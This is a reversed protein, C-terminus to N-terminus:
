PDEAIIDQPELFKFSKYMPNFWQLAAEYFGAPATFVLKHMKGDNVATIVSGAIDSGDSATYLFDITAGTATDLPFETPPLNQVNNYEQALTEVHALAAKEAAKSESNAQPWTFKSATFTMDIEIQRVSVLNKSQELIEWDTAYLFGFEKNDPGILAWTPPESPTQTATVSSTDLPTFSDALEQLKNHSITWQEEITSLHVVYVVTDQQLVRVESVASGLNADISTFQAVVLGNSLQEQSIAKFNSGEGAFNQAVYTVLYQNLEQSNYATKVDKFVVSYGARDNPEIIIVGDPREFFEWNDPYAIRFRNDIHTYNNLVLQDSVVSTPAVPVDTPSLIIPTLPATALTKSNHQTNDRCAQLILTLGVILLLNNAVIILILSKASSHSSVL